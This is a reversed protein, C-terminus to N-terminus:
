IRPFLFVIQSEQQPYLYALKTVLSRVRKSRYNFCFCSKGNSNQQDSRNIFGNHVKLSFLSFLHVFASVFNCQKWVSLDGRVIPKLFHENFMKNGNLICRVFWLKYTIAEKFIIHQWPGSVLPETQVCWHKVWVYFCIM